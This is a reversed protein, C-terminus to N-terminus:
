RRAVLADDYPRERALLAVIPERAAPQRAVRVEHLIHHDRGVALERQRPRPVARQAQPVQVGTGGRPAEDAVGLVHEAHRKGDVIPLDHRAGAVLGDLQPVREALALVGDLVHVRVGPPHAAHAEGRDRGVRDNHGSAPVLNNLHPVQGVALDASVQHSVGAVHVGHGNRGIAGQTGAAALVSDGHQPIERLALPQVRQIGAVDDVREAETRVPVPQTGGRLGADFNPVQLALADDILQARLECEDALLSLDRVADAQVPAGVAAREVAAVGIAM